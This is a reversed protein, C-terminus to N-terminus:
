VWTNMTGQIKRQIIHQKYKINISISICLQNLLTNARWPFIYILLFDHYNEKIKNVMSLHEHCLIMVLVYRINRLLKNLNCFFFLCLLLKEFMLRIHLLTCLFELHWCLSNYSSWFYNTGQPLIVKCAIHPPKGQLQQLSNFFHSEVPYSM